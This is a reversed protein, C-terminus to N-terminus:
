TGTRRNTWWRSSPRHAPTSPPYSLRRHYMALLSRVFAHRLEPLEREGLAVDELEGEDQIRDITKQVLTRCAAEDAPPSARATAELQDAIMVLATERTQPRPGPYRYTEGPPANSLTTAKDLLLRMTGTGHHERVFDAVREGMRHAKVLTVGDTVHARLIEASEWPTLRDHPNADNQNEIFYEPAETKGIDHYLAGVRAVLADADIADAAAAALVSVNISHQFTGPATSALRQLLPHDFGLWEALTLRTTHGFLWEAVSGVALLIPAGLLTGLVGGLAERAAAAPSLPVAALVGSAMVMGAVAATWVGARLVATRGVSRAIFESGCLSTVIAAGVVRPPAGLLALLLASGLILTAARWRGMALRAHMSTATSAALVAGAALPPTDATGLYALVVLGLSALLLALDGGAPHRLRRPPAQLHGAAVSTPPM